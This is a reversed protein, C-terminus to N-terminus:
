TVLTTMALGRTKAIPQVSRARVFLLARLARRSPYILRSALHRTAAVLLFIGIIGSTMTRQVLAAVDRLSYRGRADHTQPPM